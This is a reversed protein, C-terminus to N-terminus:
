LSAVSLALYCMIRATRPPVFLTQRDRATQTGTDAASTEIHVDADTPVQDVLSGPSSYDKAYPVPRVMVSGDSRGDDLTAYM